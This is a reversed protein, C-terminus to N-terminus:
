PRGLAKRARAYRGDSGDRWEQSMPRPNGWSEDRKNVLEELSARLAQNENELEGIRHMARYLRGLSDADAACEQMRWLAARLTEM